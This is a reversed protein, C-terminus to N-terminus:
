SRFFTVADEAQACSEVTPLLRPSRTGARGPKRQQGYGASVDFGLYIKPFDDEFVGFGLRGLGVLAGLVVRSVALGLESRSSSGEM